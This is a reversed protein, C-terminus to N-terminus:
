LCDALDLEKISQGCITIVDSVFQDTINRIGAVSLVELYTFKTFAPLTLMPNIKQCDDIYLERLNSGLTNAIFIIANSTLLTCHGLNISQLAPASVVFNRLGSDSLRCAGRLSLIALSSFRNSSKSLSDRLAFDLMCQGCLDLQLVQM